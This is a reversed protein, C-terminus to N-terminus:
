LRYRLLTDWSDAKLLQGSDRRSSRCKYTITMWIKQLVTGLQAWLRYVFSTRIYEQFMEAHSPCVLGQGEWSARAVCARERAQMKHEEKGMWGTKSLPPKLKKLLMERWKRLTHMWIWWRSLMQDLFRADSSCELSVCTSALLHTNKLM